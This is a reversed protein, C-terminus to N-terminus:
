ENESGAIKTRIKREGQESDFTDALLLNLEVSQVNVVTLKEYGCQLNM